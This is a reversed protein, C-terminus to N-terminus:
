LKIGLSDLLAELDAKSLSKAQEIIIAIEDESMGKRKLNMRLEELEEPMDELIVKAEAPIPEAEALAEARRAEEQEIVERIFGPRESARMRALDQRFAELEVEGLGTIDALRELLDEIEPVIAEISPGKVDELEKGLGVPEIEENIIELVMEERSRVSVPSPVKGKALATIMKNLARIIWPIAFHKAYAVISIALFIFIFGGGLALNQALIQESSFDSRINLIIIQTEHFEKTFTITVTFSRSARVVFHLTYVGDIITMRDVAHTIDDEHFNVDVLADSIGGGFDGDQLLISIVLEAGPQTLITTSNRGVLEIITLIPRISLDLFQSSLSYIATDFGIEIRYVGMILYDSVNLQYSGNALPTLDEILGSEWYARGLLGEITENNLDNIVNFVVTANRNVPVDYVSPGEIHAPTAIIVVRVTLSALSYNQLSFSATIDYLRPSTPSLTVQVLYYGTGLDTVDASGGEWAVDVFAGMIPQLNHTDNYYFTFEVVEEHYGQRLFTDVTVATPVPQITVVLTRTATAMGVSSGAIRLFITQAPLGSTDIVTSYTGNAEEVLTGTLSGLTYTVNAGSVYGGYYTDNYEVLISLMAGRVVFLASAGSALRINTPIPVVNIDVIAELFVHNLSVATLAVEYPGLDFGTTDVSAIYFGPTGNTVLPYVTNNWEMTFSSAVVPSGTITDNLYVVFVRTTNVVVDFVTQESLIQGPAKSVVLTIATQRTQYYQRSVSIQLEYIGFNEASTDLLLSYTGNALDSFNFITSNWLLTVNAGPVLSLYYSERVDLRIDHVEGWLAYVTTRHLLINFTSAGPTVSVVINSDQYFLKQAQVTFPYDQALLGTMNLTLTYVGGGDEVIQYSTGYLSTWDCTVTAGELPVDHDFDMLTLTVVIPVGVATSGPPPAEAVLSTIVPRISAPVATVLRSSYFPVGVKSASIDFYVTGIGGFVTSNIYIRYSGSGLEVVQYQPVTWNASTVVVVANEVGQGTLFDIYDLEITFNDFYPVEEILPFLIQTARETTTAVTTTSRLSYYPAGGTVDIELQIEEGVVLATPNLVTSNFSIEYYTGFDYLSYEGLAILTQAIGHSLAIHSKDIPIMTGTIYDEFKFRFTVNELFPTDGPTQTILIQTTREIVRSNVDNSAPLYYPAGSFSVSVELVYTGLNGLATSDVEILYQGSGQYAIWYNTNLVLASTSNSCDVVVAAGSVGRGTSDDIYTIVFTVNELYPVPDPSEYGFQTSRKLVSFGFADVASAFTSQSHDISAVITYLGDTGVGSTNLIVLYHGNGSYVVTYWGSLSANLTLTGTMGSSTGAVLDTYIFEITVNNGWQGPAFSLHTLQTAREVVTVTFVLTKITTYYPSGVWTVNLVLNHVGIGPLTTTDIQLLFSVDGSNYSYGFGVTGNVLSITMQPSDSIRTTTLFDIYSFSLDALEGYPTSPVPIYDIYTPRQLVVLTVTMTQNEYLPSVGKPWLFGIRFVFTGTADFASSDLRFEYVGTGFGTESVVFDDMTVPHGGTQPDITLIVNFGLSSNSINTTNAVDYYIVTFSFENLFHTATPAQDLFIDTDTGTLRVQTDLSQGDYKAVPGNWSVTITLNKWGVSGWQSSPISINYHGQGLSSGVLAFQVTGIEPSTVVIRVNGSINNIGLQLDSDQFFVLVIVQENFQTQQVPEDLTFLTSHSRIVVSITFTQNRMLYGSLSVSVSYNGPADSDLTYVTINYLGPSIEIVSYTGTWTTTISDNLGTLPVNHDINMWEVTFSSAEGVPIELVNQVYTARTNLERVTVYILYRQPLIFNAEGTVEVVYEGMDVFTTNLWVLYSGPMGSVPNVSYYSSWNCDVIGYDIPNGLTDEFRVQFSSNYNKPISLGPSEPDELIFSADYNLNITLYDVITDYYPHIWTIVILWQGNTPLDGSDLTIIYEGNGADGFTQDGTSWNCTMQGGPVTVGLIDSDNVRIRVLFLDPHTVNAIWTVQADVPNLLESNSSHVVNFARRFFGTKNWSSAAVSNGCFAELIYSGATANQGFTLIQTEAYGSSNVSALTTYWKAGSPAYVTLNVEVGALSPDLEAVLKTSDDARLDMFRSNSGTTTNVMLVDSIINTGTSKVLWYGWRDPYNFASINAFWAPGHGENWDTINESTLLPSGVYYVDRGDPLTMNFFYRNDYGTPIDANFWTLYDVSTANEVTFIEGFANPDQTHVTTEAGRAYLNTEVNFDVLITRDPDPTTPSPTWTFNIMIPGSTWTPVPNQTMNGLGPITSPGASFDDVDLGNVQLSVDSPDTLTRLYLEFNDVRAEPDLDPIYNVSQQSYLGVEIDVGDSLDFDSLDTLEILGSDFWTQAQDVDAFSKQWVRQTYDNTEISVYVAVFGDAGWASDIWYDLRFGAWVVDGRDVAMNQRAYGREGVGPDGSPSTITFEACDDGSGHGDTLWNAQPAAGGGVSVTGLTWSTPSNEMDPDQTWTRNETLDYVGVFLEHGEWDNSMPVYVSTNTTTGTGPSYLIQNGLHTDTRNGYAMVPIGSSQGVWTTMGQQSLVLINDDIRLPSIASDNGPDTNQGDRDFANLDYTAPSSAGFAIIFTLALVLTLRKATKM